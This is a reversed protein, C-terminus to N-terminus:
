KTLIWTKRKKSHGMVVLPMRHATNLVEYREGLVFIAFQSSSEFQVEGRM